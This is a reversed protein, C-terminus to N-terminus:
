LCLTVYIKQDFVEHAVLSTAKGRLMQTFKSGSLGRGEDNTM